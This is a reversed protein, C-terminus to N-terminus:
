VINESYFDPQGEPRTKFRRHCWLYLEPHELIMNSFIQNITATNEDLNDSKLQESIPKIVIKFHGRKHDRLCYAFLTECNNWRAIKAASTVTATDEINLFPVFISREKGMDQDPLMCIMEGKKLATLLKRTQHQLAVKSYRGRGKQCLHNLIKQNQHRQLVTTPAHKSIIRGAVELTTLHPSILLVGKKKELAEDLHHLGEIRVHRHIKRNSGWWALASEIIGKGIAHFSNKLIKAQIEESQGKLCRGINQKAYARRKPQLHYIIQGLGTGIKWQTKIPLLIILRLLGIGIWVPWHEPKLLHYKKLTNNQM